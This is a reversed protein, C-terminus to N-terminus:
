GIARRSAAESRSTVHERLTAHARSARRPDRGHRLSVHHRGGNRDAQPCPADPRVDSRSLASQRGMLGELQRGAVGRARSRVHKPWPHFCRLRGDLPPLPRTWVRRAVAKASCPRSRRRESSGVTSSGGASEWPIRFVRNRARESGMWPCWFGRSESERSSAVHQRASGIGTFRSRPMSRRPKFM